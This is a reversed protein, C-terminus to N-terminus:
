GLGRPKHRFWIYEQNLLLFFFHMKFETPNNAQNQMSVTTQIQMVKFNLFNANKGDTANQHELHNAM